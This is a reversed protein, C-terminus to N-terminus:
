CARHKTPLSPNPLLPLVPTRRHLRMSSFVGSTTASPCPGAGDSWAVGCAWATCVLPRAVGTCPGVGGGWAVGCAWACVSPPACRGGPARVKDVDLFSDYYCVVFPSSISALIHVEAVAGRQEQPGLESISIQKIVYVLSDALRRVKFVEGFSGEASSLCPPSHSHTNPEAGLPM